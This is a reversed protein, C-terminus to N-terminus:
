CGGIAQKAWKRYINTQMPTHTYNVSDCNMYWVICWDHKELVFDTSKVTNLPACGDCKLVNSDGWFCSWVWYCKGNGGLDGLGKSVEKRDPSDGIRSREYLCFGIVCPRQSQIGGSLM